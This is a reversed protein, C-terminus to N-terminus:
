PFHHRHHVMEEAPDLPQLKHDFDIRCVEDYPFIDRFLRHNTRSTWWPQPLRAQHKIIWFEAAPIGNAM